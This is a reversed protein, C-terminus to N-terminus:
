RARARAAAAAAAARAAAPAAGPPPAAPRRLSPMTTTTAETPPRRPPPPKSPPTACRRRRTRRAGGAASTRGRRRRRASGGSSRGTGRGRRRGRGRRGRNTRPPAARAKGRSARRRISLRSATRRWRAFESRVERQRGGGMGPVVSRNEEEPRQRRVDDALDDRCEPLDSHRRPHVGVVLGGGGGGGGGGYIGVADVGDPPARLAVAAAVRELREGRHQVSPQHIDGEKYLHPEEPLDGVDSAGGREDEGRQYVRAGGGSRSHGCM